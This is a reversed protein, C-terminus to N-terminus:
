FVLLAGDYGTTDIGHYSKELISVAETLADKESLLRSLRFGKKYIHSVFRGLVRNFRLHTLPAKFTFQFARAVLNIPEDIKSAMLEESLLEMIRDIVNEPSIFQKSNTM